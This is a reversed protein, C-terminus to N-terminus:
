DINLAANKIKLGCPVLQRTPTDYKKFTSSSSLMPWKETFFPGFANRRHGYLTIALSCKGQPLEAAFPPMLLIKEAYDNIKIGILTGRFDPFEIQCPSQNDIEAFYTVNGAYNELGQLCWDSPTLKPQLSCISGNKVGFFCM